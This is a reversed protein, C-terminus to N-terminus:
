PPLRPEFGGPSAMSDFVYSSARGAYPIKITKADFEFVDRRRDAPPKPVGLKKAAKRQTTGRAVDRLQSMLQARLQLNQAEDPPFGVDLFVNGSDRQMEHKGTM